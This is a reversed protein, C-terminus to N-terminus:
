RQGLSIGNKVFEVRVGLIHKTKGLEKIKYAAKLLDRFREYAQKTKSVVLIYDVFIFLLVEDKVLLCPKKQCIEFGLFKLFNSLRFGWRKGITEPWLYVGMMLVM